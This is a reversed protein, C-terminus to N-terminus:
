QAETGAARRLDAAIRDRELRGEETLNRYAADMQDYTWWRSNGSGMMIVLVEAGFKDM